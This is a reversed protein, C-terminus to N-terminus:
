AAIFEGLRVSSIYRGTKGSGQTFEKDESLIHDWRTQNMIELTKFGAIFLLSNKRIDINRALIDIVLNLDTALKEGLFM